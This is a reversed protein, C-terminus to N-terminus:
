IVRGKVQKLDKIKIDRWMAACGWAVVLMCVSTILMYRQADGYAHAIANRAPSGWEYSLQATIDSYVKTVSVEAPVYKALAKPFESTWIAASVTSGIASGISGFLNLMALIVAIHQHDSPAMMALEGCIVTTGGAFAVFIQTMCIYGIGADPQRFQIMLGVGLIMLPFSFYVALWKFRGTWRILFGVLLCFLCSGVRYIASIYSAETVDLGWVVQLMSSFYSGWVMSNFFEFIFMLGGFFVTRDMLLNFPVFTVPAWFREYLAFAILLLGGFIIMCIIMASRWQGYVMKKAKQQNWFFLLCLPAVVIPVVITFIGFGWRWGPGELVSQSIPGGIWTTIIYPSTAFSLMLARNKLASTDSIFVTLCYSVGQSGVSSFVQAAAYTQVNDCAAMMVFGVVWIILMLTMGQPRGWSDLIKALPIKSLGGIINAMISTAATLSHLMFASTVYPNLSRIVVEQISTVFYIFWIIVYALIMHSKTWVAAAAQVGKVGAQAEQDLSEQDSNGHGDATDKPIHATEPEKESAYPVDSGMDRAIETEKLAM